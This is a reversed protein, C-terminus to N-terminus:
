TSGIWDRAAQMAARGTETLRAHERVVADGMAFNARDRAAAALAEDREAPSLCGSAALREMVYAMRASVYTAHYIGDMPRPDVRLPSPYLEEDTNLVLPEDITFGFLLGHGAEHALVEAVKVPTRHHKPNLFVLGWFQFHSAGDFEMEAGEPAQALLVQFITAQLEDYLEPCGEALLAVGADLLAAFEDRMPADIPAYRAMDAGMRMALVAELAAAEPRGRAMVARGAGREPLDALAEAARSARDAEGGLLAEGLEYYLGFGESPLRHGDRVSRIVPKLLATIGPLEEACAEAIHVLSDALARHMQADLLRGRDGSPAFALRASPDPSQIM